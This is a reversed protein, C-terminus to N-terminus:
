EKFAFSVLDDVKWENLCKKEKQEHDLVLTREPRYPEGDDQLQIGSAMTKAHPNVKVSLVYSDDYKDELSLRYSNEEDDM